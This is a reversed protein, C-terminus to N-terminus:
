SRRHHGSIRDSAALDPRRRDRLDMVLFGVDSMVDTWRMSENFEICDFLTMRGAILAINGLHLDGHCERVCGDRRRVQFREAIRSHEQRTWERLAELSSRDHPDDIAPFMQEFNQLAQQLIDDPRGFSAGEGAVAARTHFAAVETALADIAAPTLENRAIVRSLLGAQDFQRMRVAYELAPGSGGIVPAELSGTIPVVDLYIDPAFRRNLRLEEHCYFQRAALTTFNLFGFDVAKKIKFAHVGTLLVYSIHTELLEVREVGGGYVSPEQLATVLQHQTTVDSTQTTM